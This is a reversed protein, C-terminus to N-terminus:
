RAHGTPAPARGRRRYWILLGALALLAGALYPLYRPLYVFLAANIAVQRNLSYDDPMPLVGVAATYEDYQTRM